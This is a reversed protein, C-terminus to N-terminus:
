CREFSKAITWLKYREFNKLYGTCSPVAKCLSRSVTENVTTPISLALDGVCLSCTPFMFKACSIIDCQACLKNSFCKQWRACFFCLRRKISTEAITKDYNVFAATGDYTLFKYSLWYMFDTSSLKQSTNSHERYVCYTNVFEFNKFQLLVRRKWMKSSRYKYSIDFDHVKNDFDDCGNM